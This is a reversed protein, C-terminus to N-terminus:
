EAAVKMWEHPVQTVKQNVDPAVTKQGSKRLRIKGTRLQEVRDRTLKIYEESRDIAVAKRGNKVAAIATTGAGVFPDLVTDGSMTLALIFREALENPFQCPHPTLEPHNAKVNPFDLIPQLFLDDRPSFTWFDSPNKGLPNGSPMGAKIGKSAAHRKGPYLQPVRIPDLNFFYDDTKTFWLVTEYRGSLRRKANLGFNFQWILRNRLKWGRKFFMEYFYYDLPYVAGKDVFNGVQWCISGTPSVKDCLEGVIPDLWKVYQDLSMVQDREYIKRLNYPPSTLVLQVSNSEVERLGISVDAQLLILEDDEYFRIKKGVSRVRAM